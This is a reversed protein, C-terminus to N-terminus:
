VRAVASTVPSGAIMLVPRANDARSGYIEEGIVGRALGQCM